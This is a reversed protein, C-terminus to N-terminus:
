SELFLSAVLFLAGLIFIIFGGWGLASSLLVSSSTMNEALKLLRVKTFM